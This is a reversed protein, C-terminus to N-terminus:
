PQEDRSREFNTIKRSVNLIRFYQGGKCFYMYATIGMM